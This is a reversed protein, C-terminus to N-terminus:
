KKVKNYFSDNVLRAYSYPTKFFGGAKMFDYVGHLYEPNAQADLTEPKPTRVKDPRGDYEERFKRVLEAEVTQWEDEAKARKTADYNAQVVAQVIDPHKEIIDRRVILVTNPNKGSWADSTDALEHFGRKLLEDRYSSRVFSADLKGSEFSNLIQAPGAMSVKVTGGGSETALGEKQLLANFAAETQYNPNMVGVSKGDLQKLSTIGAPAWLTDGDNFSAGIIVYNDGAKWLEQQRSIYGSWNETMRGTPVWAFDYYGLYLNTNIKNDGSDFISAFKYGTRKVAPNLTGGDKEFMYYRQPTAISTSTCLMKFTKPESAPYINEKVGEPAEPKFMPIQSPEGDMAAYKFEAPDYVKGGDLYLKTKGIMTFNSESRGPAVAGSTDGSAPTTAKPATPGCGAVAFTTMSALVLLAAVRKM